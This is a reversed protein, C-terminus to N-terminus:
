QKKRTIGNEIMETEKMKRLDYSKQTTTESFWEYVDMTRLTDDYCEAKKGLSSYLVLGEWVVLLIEHDGMCDDNNKMDEIFAKPSDFEFKLRVTDDNRSYIVLM